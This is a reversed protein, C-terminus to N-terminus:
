KVITFELLIIDKTIKQSKMTLNAVKNLLETIM